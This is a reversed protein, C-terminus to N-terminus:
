AYNYVREVFTIVASLISVYREIYEASIQVNLLNECGDLEMRYTGGEGGRNLVIGLTARNYQALSRALSLCLIFFVSNGRGTGSILTLFNM